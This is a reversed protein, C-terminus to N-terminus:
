RLTSPFRTYPDDQDGDEQNNQREVHHRPWREGGALLRFAALDQRRELADFRGRVLVGRSLIRFVAMFVVVSGAGVALMVGSAAKTPAMCVSQVQPADDVIRRAKRVVAPVDLFASAFSMNFSVPSGVAYHGAGKRVSSGGGRPCCKRCWRSNRCHRRRKAPEANSSSSTTREVGCLASGTREQVLPGSDPYEGPARVTGSQAALDELETARHAGFLPDPNGLAHREDPM